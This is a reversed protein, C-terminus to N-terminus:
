TIFKHPIEMGVLVEKLFHCEVSDYAKQMDIMLMCTPSIVKRGYKKVLEHCLIVNDTLMRGPVFAAQIPDVLYEMVSQLRSTLMKYIIKYITTCCSIPRYEKTSIPHQVKPILTISTRDIPDYLEITQFFELVAATIKDSKILWVQKFFYSNFSDEVIAKSDEISKLAQKVNTATFPQILFLQQSRTLIPRSKLVELQATPM